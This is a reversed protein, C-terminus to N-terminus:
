QGQGPPPDPNRGIGGTGFLDTSAAVAVITAVIGAALGYTRARSFRRERARGVLDAPITLPEGSWRNSQGNLYQVSSVRLVYSSDDRTALVGEVRAASPGISDGLAVRGRDNLDLLLTSGPATVTEVPVASYCASMVPAARRAPSRQARGGSGARRPRRAPRPAPASPTPMVDDSATRARRLRGSRNYFDQVRADMEQYPVPWMYTTGQALDGWRALRRVVALLGDVRDGHAEGVEDGRALTGCELRTARATPTRPVCSTASGGPHAPARTAARRAGDPFPPLGNAVRTVNVLPVAEAARNLRILAEARLMRIEAATVLAM